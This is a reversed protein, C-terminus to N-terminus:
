SEIIESEFLNKMDNKYKSSEVKLYDWSLVTTLLILFLPIIILFNFKAQIIMQQIFSIFVFFIVCIWIFNFFLIFFSYRIKLSINTFHVKEEIKGILILKPTRSSYTIRNIKFIDRNIFGEYPKFSDVKIIRILKEPETIENLRNIVEELSLTTNIKFYVAPILKM